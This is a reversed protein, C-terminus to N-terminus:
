GGVDLIKYIQKSEKRDDQLLDKQSYIKYCDKSPLGFLLEMYAHELWQGGVSHV